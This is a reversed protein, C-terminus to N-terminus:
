PVRFIKGTYPDKVASGSAFGHIDVYGGGPSYPSVVFGPRNPVPVGYPLDAMAVQVPAASSAPKDPRASASHESTTAVASTAPQQAGPQAGKTAAIEDKDDEANATRQGPESTESKKARKQASRQAQAQRNARGISHGVRRLFDIPGATTRSANLSLMVFCIAIISTRFKM